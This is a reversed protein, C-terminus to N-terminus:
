TRLGKIIKYKPLSIDFTDRNTDTHKDKERKNTGRAM